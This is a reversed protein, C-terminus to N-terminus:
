IYELDNLFVEIIIEGLFGLSDNLCKRIDLTNSLGVNCLGAMSRYVCKLSWVDVTVGALARQTWLHGKYKVLGVLWLKGGVNSDKFSVPSQHDGNLNWIQAHFARAGPWEAEQFSSSGQFPERKHWKLLTQFLQM